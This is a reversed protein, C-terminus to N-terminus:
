AEVRLQKVMWEFGEDNSEGTFAFGYGKLPKILVSNKDVYLRVTVAETYDQIWTLRKELMFRWLGHRRAEEKVFSRELVPNLGQIHWIESSAIVQKEQILTFLISKDRGHTRPLTSLDISM